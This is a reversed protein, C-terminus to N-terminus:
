ARHRTMFETVRDVVTPARMWALTPYAGAVVQHEAGKVLAAAAPTHRAMPDHEASLFLTPCSLASLAPGLAYDAYARLGWHYRAFVNMKETYAMRMQEADPGLRKQLRSWAELVHSGDQQPKAEGLDALFARHGAPDVPPVALAVLHRVRDPGALRAIEAALAVGIEAGVLTFTRAGLADIAELVRRAYESFSQQTLTSPSMGYGPADLGYARCREALPLIVREFQRSSLPWQHLFFVYSGVRGAFRTHIQEQPAPTQIYARELKVM